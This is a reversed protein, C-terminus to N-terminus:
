DDARYGRQPLSWWSRAQQLAQTMGHAVGGTLTNVGNALDLTGGTTSRLWSTSSFISQGGTPRLRFDNPPPSGSDCWEPDASAVGGSGLLIVVVLSLTALARRM